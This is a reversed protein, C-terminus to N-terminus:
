ALMNVKLTLISAGGFINLSHTVEGQHSTLENIIKLSLSPAHKKNMAKDCVLVQVYQLNILSTILNM